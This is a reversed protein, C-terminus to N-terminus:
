GASPAPVGWSALFKRGAACFNCFTVTSRSPDHARRIRIEEAIRGLRVIDVRKIPKAHNMCGRFTKIRQDGAIGAQM